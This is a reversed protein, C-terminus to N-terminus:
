KRYDGLTKTTARSAGPIASATHRHAYTARRSNEFYDIGRARMFEDQIGRFDIWMHSLQHVFLPGAYLFRARLAEALSVDASWARYSQEPLLVPRRVWALAYLLLAENYGDWRYKLFGREPKWGHSVTAGGNLAWQWDARRYMAEALERIEREAPTGTSIPPPRSCGRWSSPRISPRSNRGGPGAGQECISSTTTSGRTAPARGAERESRQELLVAIDHTHAQFAEKRAIFGCETGVAYAALGFGVATISAPLETRTNDRVLGNLPNVEKLFYQFTARQLELLAGDGIAAM